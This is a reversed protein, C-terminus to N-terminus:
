NIEFFEELKEITFQNRLKYATNQNARLGKTWYAQEIPLAKIWDIAVVYECLEMDELDHKFNNDELPCDLLRHEKGDHFIIADKLPVAKRTVTGVGVYGKGGPIMCFVRAGVFLHRLKQSFWSGNGASVFGYKMADRWSRIPGDEFNVVFDRQNWTEKKKDSQTTAAKVEAIAPDILWTRTLFENEGEKFYRFYVANIPVNYNTSLYNVIRETGLDLEACVIVMQHANNLEDPLETNFKNAFAEELSHHHLHEYREVFDDYSLNQVWSAYDIVQAAVDRPTQHKKLEYIVLDGEATMGLIDIFKGHDTAVQRGIVLVDDSIISIDNALISELKLESDLPSFFIRNAESGKVKWIGVEIPM